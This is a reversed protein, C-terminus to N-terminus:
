ANVFDTPLDDLRRATGASWSAGGATGPGMSSPAAAFAGSGARAATGARHEADACSASRSGARRRARSRAVSARRIAPSSSGRSAPSSSPFAIRARARRPRRRSYARCSSSCHEPSSSFAGCPGKFSARLSANTGAPGRVRRARHPQRGRAERLRAFHAKVASRSMYLRAGIQPNSLGDVALRVVELEAPTLSGWGHDTRRRSGRSRSAYASPRRSRCSPAPRMEAPRPASACGRAAGRAAAAAARLRAAQQDEPRRVGRAGRPEPRHRAAPRARVRIALAEHHVGPPRGGGEWTGRNTSPTPSCPPCARARPRARRRARGHRGGGRRCGAHRQAAALDPLARVALYTSRGGDTAGRRWPWDRRDCM